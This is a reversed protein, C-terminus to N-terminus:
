RRRWLLGLVVGVGAAILLSQLPRERVYGELDQEWDSLRERGQQYYESARNRIEGIKEQAADRVQSGMDRLNEQVEQTKERLQETTSRRGSQNEAAAM